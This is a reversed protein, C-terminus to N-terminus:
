YNNIKNLYLQKTKHSNPLIKANYNFTIYRYFWGTYNRLFLLNYTVVTKKEDFM